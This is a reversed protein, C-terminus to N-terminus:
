STREQKEEIGLYIKWEKEHAKLSNEADEKTAFYIKCYKDFRDFRGFWVGFECYKYDYQVHHKIQSFDNWDPEFGKTDEILVARAKLWELHKEAEEKTKFAWGIEMNYKLKEEYEEEFEDSSIHWYYFGNEGHMITWFGTELEDTIELPKIEEFWDTLIEPNEKLEQKTYVIYMMKHDAYYEGDNSIDTFTVYMPEEPTGAILDEDENIFFKQGKKFIPLNKILRYTKNSM